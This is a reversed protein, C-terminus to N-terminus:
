FFVNNITSHAVKKQLLRWFSRCDSAHGSFNMSIFKVGVNSNWSSTQLGHTSFFFASSFSRAPFLKVDRALLYSAVTFSGLGVGTLIVTSISVLLLLLRKWTGLRKHPRAQSHQGALTGSAQRLLFSDQRQALWRPFFFCGQRQRRMSLIYVSYVIMYMHGKQGETDTDSVKKACQFMLFFTQWVLQWVCRM